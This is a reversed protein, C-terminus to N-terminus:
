EKLTDLTSRMAMDFSRIGDGRKKRLAIDNFVTRRYTQEMVATHLLGVFYPPYELAIGVMESSATNGFWSNGVWAVILGINLDQLRLIGLQKLGEIFEQLTSCEGMTEIIELTRESRNYTNRAIRSAAAYLESEADRRNLEPDKFLCTYFWACATVVTLNDSANLGKRKSIAEGLWHAYVFMPLDSLALIYGPDEKWLHQLAAQKISLGVAGEYIASESMREIKSRFARLDIIYKNRIEVPHAFPSISEVEPGDIMLAQVMPYKKILDTELQGSVMAVELQDTLRGMRIRAGVTTTRPSKFM